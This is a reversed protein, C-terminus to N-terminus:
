AGGAARDVVLGTAVILERTTENADAVPRVRLAEEADAFLIIEMQEGDEGVVCLHRVFIEPDRLRKIDTYVAKVRHVGVNAM